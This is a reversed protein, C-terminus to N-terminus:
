SLEMWPDPTEQTLQLPGAYNLATMGGYRKHPGSFSGFYVFTPNQM